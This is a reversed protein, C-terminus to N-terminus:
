SPGMLAQPAWRPGPARNTVKAGGKALDQVRWQKKLKLFIMLLTDLTVKPSVREPTEERASHNFAAPSRHKDQPSLGYRTGARITM